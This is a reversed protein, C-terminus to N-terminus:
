VPLLPLNEGSPTVQKSPKRFPVWIRNLFSEPLIDEHEKIFRICARDTILANRNGDGGLCLYDMYTKRDKDWNLQLEPYHRVLYSLVQFDKLKVATHLPTPGKPRFDKPTKDSIYEVLEMSGSAAAYHLAYKESEDVFSCSQLKDEVMRKVLPLNEIEIAIHLPNRGGPTLRKESFEPLLADKSTWNSFKRNQEEMGSARHSWWIRILVFLALGVGFTAAFSIGLTKLEYELSPEEQVQMLQRPAPFYVM